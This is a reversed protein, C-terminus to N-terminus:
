MQHRFIQQKLKVVKMSLQTKTRHILARHHSFPSHQSGPYKKRWRNIQPAVRPQLLSIVCNPMLEQWPDSQMECFLVHSLFRVWSPSQFISEKKGEQGFFLFFFFFVLYSKKKKKRWSLVKANWEQRRLTVPPGLPAGALHESTKTECKQLFFVFFVGM